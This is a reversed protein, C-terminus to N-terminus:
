ERKITMGILMGGLMGFSISYYIANIGFTNIFISGIAVGFYMGLSM